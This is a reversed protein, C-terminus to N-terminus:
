SPFRLYNPRFRINFQTQASAQFM